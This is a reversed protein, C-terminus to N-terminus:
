LVTVPSSRIRWWHVLLSNRNNCYTSKRKLISLILAVLQLLQRRRLMHLSIYLAMHLCCSNCASFYHVPKCRVDDAWVRSARQLSKSQLCMIHRDLWLHLRKMEVNCKSMVVNVVDSLNDFLGASSSIRAAREDNNGVVTRWLNWICSKSKMKSRDCYKFDIQVWTVWVTCWM